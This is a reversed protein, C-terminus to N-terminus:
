EHASCFNTRTPNIICVTTRTIYIAWQQQPSKNYGSNHRTTQTKSRNNAKHISVNMINISKKKKLM